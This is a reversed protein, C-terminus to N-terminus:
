RIKSLDGNLIVPKMAEIEDSYDMQPVPNLLFVKKNLVHAFAIEILSNGGIYNKINNKDKNIVLIADTKKIEEFYACIVDFEIKEWKNEVDIIGNAYKETNAPVIVVHNQKELKQKIELMEKAFAM